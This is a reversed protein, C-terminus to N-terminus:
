FPLCLCPMCRCEKCLKKFRSDIEVEEPESKPQCDPCDYPTQPIHGNDGCTMCDPTDDVQEEAAEIAADETPYDSGNAIEIGKEFIRYNWTGNTEQIDIGSRFNNLNQRVKHAMSSYRAHSKVEDEMKKLARKQLANLERSLKLWAGSPTSSELAEKETFFPQASFQSFDRTPRYQCKNSNRSVFMRSLEILFMSDNETRAVWYVKPPFRDNRSQSRKSKLERLKEQLEEIESDIDSM